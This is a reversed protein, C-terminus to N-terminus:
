ANLLSGDLDNSLSFRRASWLQEARKQDMSNKPAWRFDLLSWSFNYGDRLCGFLAYRVQFLELHSSGRCSFCNNLDGVDLWKNFIDLKKVTIQTFNLLLNCAGSLLYM